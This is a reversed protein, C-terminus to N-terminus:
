CPGIAIFYSRGDHTYNKLIRPVGDEESLRVLERLKETRERLLLMGFGNPIELYDLGENELQEAAEKVNEEFGPALEVEVEVETGDDSTNM